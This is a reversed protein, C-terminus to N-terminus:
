ISGTAPFESAQWEDWDPQELLKGQTLQMVWTVMNLVQGLDVLDYTPGKRLHEAVTLFEWHNNLQDHTLQTFSATSVIPLGRRSIDPRVKPHAFLLMARTYGEDQLTKFAVQADNITHVICDGIEILWTNCLQTRWQPIKAGPTHPIM